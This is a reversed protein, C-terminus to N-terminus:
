RNLPRAFFIAWQKALRGPSDPIPILLLFADQFLLGFEQGVLNEPLSKSLPEIVFTDLQNTGYNPRLLVEVGM